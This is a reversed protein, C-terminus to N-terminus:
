VNLPYKKLVDWITGAKEMNVNIADSPKLDDLGDFCRKMDKIEATIFYKFRHADAKRGRQKIWIPKKSGSPICKNKIISALIEDTADTIWGSLTEALGQFNEAESSPQLSQVKKYEGIINLYRGMTRKTEAPYNYFMSKMFIGAPASNLLWDVIDPDNTDKAYSTLNDAKKELKNLGEKVYELDFETGTKDFYELERNLAEIQQCYKIAKRKDMDTFKYHM